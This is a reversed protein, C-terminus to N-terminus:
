QFIVNVPTTVCQQFSSIDDQVCSKINLTQTTGKDAAPNGTWVAHMM